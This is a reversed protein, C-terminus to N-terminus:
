RSITPPRFGPDRLFQGGKGWVGHVGGYTRIYIYADKGVEKVNGDNLRKREFVFNLIIRNEKV